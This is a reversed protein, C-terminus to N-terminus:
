RSELRKILEPAYLVALAEDYTVPNTRRRLFPVINPLISEKLHKALAADDLKSILAERQVATLRLEELVEFSISRDPIEDIPVAGDPLPIRLLEDM